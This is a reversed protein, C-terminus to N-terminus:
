GGAIQDQEGVDVGLVIVQQRDVIVVVKSAGKLRGLGQQPQDHLSLTLLILTTTATLSPVRFLGVFPVSTILIYTCAATCNSYDSDVNRDRM